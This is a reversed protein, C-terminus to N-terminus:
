SPHSYYYHEGAPLLYKNLYMKSISPLIHFAVFATHYYHAIIVYKM